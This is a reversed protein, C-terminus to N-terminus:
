RAGFNEVFLRTLRISAIKWRGDELRYREHYHGMGHTYRTKRDLARLEDEMAVIGHAETDSDITVEHCHGHHTSTVGALSERFFAIVADRGSVVQGLPGEPEGGVPTVRIADTADFSMDVTLVDTLADYDRTDILRLYRGKAVKIEEIAALRAIDDM